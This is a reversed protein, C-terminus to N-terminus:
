KRGSWARSVVREIDELAIEGRLATIRQGVIRDKIQRHADIVALREDGIVLRAAGPGDLTDTVRAPMQCGFEDALKAFELPVIALGM